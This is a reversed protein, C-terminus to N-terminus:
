EIITPFRLALADRIDEIDSDSLNTSFRSFICLGVGDPAPLTEDARAFIKPTRGPDSATPSTLSGNFSASSGNLVVKSGTAGGNEDFSIALFVWKPDAWTFGMESVIKTDQDSGNSIQVFVLGEGVGESSVFVTQIHVGIESPTPVKNSFLNVSLSEAPEGLYVVAIITWKAGEKHMGDDFTPSGAPTFYDGGDSRFMEADSGADPTGFFTPDSSEAGSTAGRQYHNGSGSADNWQQGTGSYSNEDGADLALDMTSDLELDEIVSVYYLNSEPVTLEGSMELAGLEGGGSIFSEITAEGEGTLAPLEIDGFVVQGQFGEGTLAPLVIDGEIFGTIHIEGDGDLPPLGIDGQITSPEVKPNISFSVRLWGPGGDGGPSNTQGGIGRPGITFPVSAGFAPGSDPDFTRKFYSGSEAGAGTFLGFIGGRAGAGGGGPEGGPAGAGAGTPAPGGEGGFPADGGKGTSLGPSGPINVDGGTATANGTGGTEGQGPAGGRAIMGLCEVNGGATGNVRTSLSSVGVGGGGPAHGEIVLEDYVPVTFNGSVTYIESGELIPPIIASALIGPYINM